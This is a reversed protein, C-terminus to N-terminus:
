KEFFKGWDNIWFRIRRLVVDILYFLYYWYARVKSLGLENTYLNWVSSQNAIVASSRSGTVKRYLMLPEQLCWADFGKRMILLWWLTDEAHNNDVASLVDDSFCERALVVSSNAIGRRRLYQKFNNRKWGFYEGSSVKGNESILKYNTFSFKIDNKIMFEIQSTLKNPLWVDDSDLFAIYTGSCYNIGFARAQAPGSDCPNNILKIRSDQKEYDKVISITGDSSGGDVILLEWRSYCQLKVSDICDNIFRVSNFSPVIISVINNNQDVKQKNPMALNM